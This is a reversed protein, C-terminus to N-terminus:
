LPEMIGNQKSKCIHKYNEMIFIFFVFLVGCEEM